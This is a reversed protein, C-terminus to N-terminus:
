SKLIEDLLALRRSALSCQGVWFLILHEVGCSVIGGRYWSNVIKTVFHSLSPFTGTEEEQKGAFGVGEQSRCAWSTCFFGNYYCPSNLGSEGEVLKGLVVYLSRLVLGQVRKKRRGGRQWHRGDAVREIKACAGGGFRV